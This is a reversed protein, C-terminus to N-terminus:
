LSYTKQRQNQPHLLPSTVMRQEKAREARDHLPSQNFSNGLTITLGQKAADKARGIVAGLKRAFGFCLAAIRNFLACREGLASDDASRCCSAVAELVEVREEADARTKQLSELRNEETSAIRQIEERKDQLRELKQETKTIAEKAAIYDRHSLKSLVKDAADEGIEIGVDFGFHEEMFRSLEPHFSQMAARDFMKSQAVSKKFIPNGEDDVAAVRKYRVTGKTDRKVEGAKHEPNKAEDRETWRLPQSKDNVMKAQSCLPVFCFHLHPTTEDMHVYAGVINDEGVKGKLFEYVQEFFERERGELRDNKPLTVVWDSIVNTNKNPKTDAEEVKSKIFGKPDDRAFLTYNLHTREPDINQNRYKYREQEPDNGHRTYHNLMNGVAGSKYGQLNAMDIM